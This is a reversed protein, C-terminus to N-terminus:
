CEKLEKTKIIKIDSLDSVDFIMFTATSTVPPKRPPGMLFNKCFKCNEVIKGNHDERNLHARTIMSMIGAQDSEDEQINM